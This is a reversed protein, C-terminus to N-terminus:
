AVELFRNVRDELARKLLYSLYIEDYIAAGLRNNTMHIYSSLLRNYVTARDTVPYTQGDDTRGVLSLKQESDLADIRQRLERSHAIWDREITTLNGATGGTAYDKIEDIRRQLDSAIKLYQRDFDAFDRNQWYRKQWFNIYRDLFVIMAADDELFAYCLPLWLQVSMGLLITRVRLNVEGLLRTVIASSQEFHWEAVEVGAEGGYRDYEPEYEIFHFSNNARVPMEGNVGYTEVWKDEGYEAVFQGKHYAAFHKFDPNYLSPNRKLYAALTPEAVRKIAEHGIGEEPLLRLRIHHGEQWYRIFFSRRILGQARLKEVLPEICDLLMPNVNSYYFIHISLWHKAM